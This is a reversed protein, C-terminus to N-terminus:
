LCESVHDYFIRRIDPLEGLGKLECRVDFGKSIFFAKWSDKEGAIDKVTHDGAVLMFPVLTVKKGGLKQIASYVTDMDPYGGLAGAFFNSLGNAKLHYDLAAYAADSHHTTGHGVFVTIENIDYAKGLAKSVKTYDAGDTLLPAGVKLAEFKDKFKEVVAMIKKEYELGNIILTPQIVVNTYGEKVFGELATKVNDIEMNDRKKLKARIIESTFARRIEYHPFEAAMEREIVSITKELTEFYSTGFSTVLIAQKM